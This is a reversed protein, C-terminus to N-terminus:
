ITGIIFIRLGIAALITGMAGSGWTQMMPSKIFSSIPNTSNNLKLATHMTYNHSAKKLLIFSGFLCGAGISSEVLCSLVSRPEDDSTPYVMCGEIDSACSRVTDFIRFNGMLPLMVQMLVISIIKKM